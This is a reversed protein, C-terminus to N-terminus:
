SRSSWTACRVRVTRAGRSRVRGGGRQAELVPLAGAALAAEGAATLRVSGARAFATTLADRLEDLREQEADSLAEYLAVRRRVPCAPSRPTVRKSFCSPGRTPATTRREPGFQRVLGRNEVVFPIDRRQLEAAVATGYPDFLKLFLGTSSCRRTATSTPCSRRQAGAHRPDGLAAVAPGNTPTRADAPERDVVAAVVITLMSRGRRRAAGCSAGRLAASAVGFLMFAGLAWLWRSSHPTLSGFITIPASRHHDRVRRRDRSRCDRARDGATRDRRRWAFVFCDRPDVALVPWRSRPSASGPRSGCPKTSSRRTSRRGSGSRRSRSCARWRRPPTASAPRDGRESDGHRRARPADPQRPRREHVARDGAPDLLAVVVGLSIAVSREVRRRRRPWCRRAPPASAGCRSASRLSAGSCSRRSWLLAYSLHTQVVLSRSVRGGVAVRVLDGCGLSWVLMLLLLFPLVLTHPQWPDYLLESGM